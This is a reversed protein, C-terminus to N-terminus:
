TTLPDPKSKANEPITAGFYIAGEDPLVAFRRQLLAATAVLSAAMIVEGSNTVLFGVIERPILQTALMFLSGLLMWPVGSKRWVVFGCVLVTVLMTISGLPPGPFTGTNTYYFMGGDWVPSMQLFVVYRMVGALMAFGYLVWQGANAVPTAAWRAGTQRCLGIAAVIWAPTFVAHGIFRPWSLAVLAADHGSNLLPAGLVMIANDWVVAAIPLALMLLSLSPRRRLLRIALAALTAQALAFFVFAASHM